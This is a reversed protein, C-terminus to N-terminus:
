VSLEQKIFNLIIQAGKDQGAKNFHLEDYMLSPDGGLIEELDLFKSTSFKAYGRVADSLESRHKFHSNFKEERLYNRRVWRDVNWDIQRYPSTAIILDIGIGRLFTEITSLLVQTDAFSSKRSPSVDLPPRIPSYTPNNTWYGGSPKANADSQPVFLFVVDGPKAVAPLKGMIMLAAQLLTTGSYGTNFANVSIGRAVQAVFRDQPHSLSSEVFSDGVFFISQLSPDHEVGTIIFGNEDTDLAFEESSLSGDSRRILKESPTIPDTRNRRHEKLRLLYAM